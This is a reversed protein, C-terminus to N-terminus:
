FRLSLGGTAALGSLDLRGFGLYDAGLTAKAWTYRLEATMSLNRALTVDTGGFAHVEPTTGSSRFHDPFVRLTNFDVFDGDQRFDYHIGGGGAGLYLAYHAPVWAFHGVMTGRPTVYYKISGTIPRREFSVTQQIPQDNNDVWNRFESPTTTKSYALGVVLEARPSIALGIDGAFVMSSFDNRSVTHQTTVFSFLDSGAMAHDYGARFSFSVQPARFLFGRGGQQAQVMPATALTLM